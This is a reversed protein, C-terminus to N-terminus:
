RWTCVGKLVPFTSHRVRLICDVALRLDCWTACNGVRPLWLHVWLSCSGCRIVLSSTLPLGLRTDCSFSNKWRLALASKCFLVVLLFDILCGCCWCVKESKKGERESEWVEKKQCLLLGSHSTAYTANFYISVDVSGFSALQSLEFLLKM